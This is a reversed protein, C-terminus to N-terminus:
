PSRLKRFVAQFRKRMTPQLSQMAWAAYGVDNQCIWEVRKGKHKGFPMVFTGPPTEKAAWDLFKGCEGCSRRLHITKNKFEHHTFRYFTSGCNDCPRTEDKEYEYKM